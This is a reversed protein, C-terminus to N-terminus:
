SACVGILDQPGFHVLVLWFQAAPLYWCRTRSLLIVPLLQASLQICCHLFVTLGNWPGCLTGCFAVRAMFDQFELVWVCVWIYLLFLFYLSSFVGKDLDHHAVTMRKKKEWEKWWGGSSGTAGTSCEPRCRWRLQETESFLGNELQFLCFVFLAYLPALSLFSSINTCIHRWLLFDLVSRPHQPFKLYHYKMQILASQERKAFFVPCTLVSLRCGVLRRPLTVGM